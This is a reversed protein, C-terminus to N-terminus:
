SEPGQGTPGQGTPGEGPPGEGPPGEGPPWARPLGCIQPGHGDDGMYFRPEGPEVKGILSRGAPVGEWKWADEPTAPGTRARVLDDRPASGVSASPSATPAGHDDADTGSGPAGDPGLVPKPGKPRPRTGLAVADDFARQSEPDGDAMPVGSGTGGEGTGEAGTGPGAGAAGAAAGAGAAAEATQALVRGDGLVGLGEHLAHSAATRAPRTVAATGRERLGDLHGVAGAEVAPIMRLIAFPVFTAMVLLAGGALVSSFGSGHTGTGATGSSVAGAALSLTAVIVFKSLILAALTEVLRRCWHSVAPWVLAALALPLFLVAVYVAAARILLELWLVFAAVAILLSILLLVFSAITPDAAAAVLGSTVGTLLSSVDANTGGAVADSMADTASLSLIVIQIAVVALLLALPLQVLFTRVLQGPNQRVVAQLTSALLMPLIVVGALATMQGYHARFWSAGIDVTTTASLVDGIQGLLWEAGSAVWQSIGSLVTEFGSSAISGGISGAQCIPNLADLGTCGAALV